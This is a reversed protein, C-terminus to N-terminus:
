EEFIFITENPAIRNEKRALWEIFEPSNEFRHQNLRVARIDRDRQDIDAQLKSKERELGRLQDMLPICFYFGGAIIVVGAILCAIQTLRKFFQEM